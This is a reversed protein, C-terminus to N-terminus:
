AHYHLGVVGSSFVRTELLNLKQREEINRFLPIGQGLLVPNMFLWYEDILQHQMLTHSAGPSGFIQINSGPGEKLERIAGPIDDHIIRTNTLQRGQMTKSIVIKMVKRYWASHEKDHKSATPSEDATPWYSDMMEWTKRGYLATDAQDTMKGAYDFIEDDIHIWDMEGAPGAVFGDLTVHMTLILNKMKKKKHNDKQFISRTYIYIFFPFTGAASRYFFADNTRLRSNDTRFLRSDM